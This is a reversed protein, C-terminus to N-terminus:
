VSAMTHFSTRTVPEQIEFRVALSCAQGLKRYARERAQETERIQRCIELANSLDHTGGLDRELGNITKHADDVVTQLRQLVQDVFRERVHSNQIAEPDFGFVKRFRWSYFFGFM